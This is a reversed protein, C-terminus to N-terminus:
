DEDGYEELNQNMGDLSSQKIALTVPTCTIIGNEDFDVDYYEGENALPVSLVISGGVRRAKVLYLQQM